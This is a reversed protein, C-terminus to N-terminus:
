NFKLCLVACLDLRIVLHNNKLLSQGSAQAYLRQSCDLVIECSALLVGPYTSAALKSLASVAELGSNNVRNFDGAQFGDTQGNCMHLWAYTVM